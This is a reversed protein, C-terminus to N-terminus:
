LNLRFALFMKNEILFFKVMDLCYTLNLYTPVFLYLLRVYHRYSEFLLIAFNSTEM